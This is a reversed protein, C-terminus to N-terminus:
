ARAVSTYEPRTPSPRGPASHESSEEAADAIRQAVPRVHPVVNTAESRVLPRPTQAADAAAAVAGAAAAPEARVSVTAERVATEPSAQRSGTTTSHTGEFGPASSASEAGKAKENEIGWECINQM